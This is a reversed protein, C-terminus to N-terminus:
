VPVAEQVPALFLDGLLLLLLYCLTFHISATFVSYFSTNPAWQTVQTHLSLVALSM